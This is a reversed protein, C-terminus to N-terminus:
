EGRHELLPEFVRRALEAFEEDLPDAHRFALQYYPQMGEGWGANSGEWKDRALKLSNEKRQREAEMYALASKPFFKLPAHLGQWYLDLLDQLIANPNGVPQLRLRDSPGLWTSVLAVDAPALLNLLLHRIWLDLFHRAGLSDVTYDRLGQATVNDLWGTLQFHGLSLNVEVKQGSVEPMQNLDNLLAKLRGVERGYLAQGIQGHPLLGRARVLPLIEGPTRGELQGALLQQRIAVDAFPELLFPEHTELLGKHEYLHVRLRERLLYRAPNQFFWILQQVDLRRYAADPEPLTESVLPKATEWGQGAQQAADCLTPSYSFLRRDGTFYRPSFAQLPHETVILQLVDGNADDQPYFGQRVYDLLESVLVSPPIEGNDRIDRGVYSLYLAQRASLIAELFLYRDDLRRSRDGRQPHKAMLDFDVPQQPRPYVGDSLGILCVVQFPISRMPVMACFTVGGSLFGDVGSSANLKRKLWARIVELPVADTFGAVTANEALETLAGRVADREPEFTEDAAIFDALLRTLEERWDASTKAGGLRTNLAFLRRTFRQLRGMLRANEGEMADYPLVDRYLRREGAPLAFGLLLREMGAKWTHEATMPLELAARSDADIGWRVATDRLWASILSLDAETLEFRRRVAPIELLALVQNVDFRSGPLELLRLFADVVPSEARPNRDAISYPVRPNATAFVAHIAPAYTEIAPTMVVVGSAKLSPQRDFLDLLQDYLVEVERLPSHCVHVQLSYDITQLPTAPGDTTYDDRTCHTHNGGRNRLELIDMQLCHLLTDEAIEEFLDHVGADIEALLHHFDRGQRGLSALLRNGTELYLAAAEDASGCQNAIERETVIMGWYQRCPNLLYLDVACSKSLAHLTELYPTPLSNIGFVSVRGLIGAPRHTLKTITEVFARHLRARHPIHSNVLRRWLAAQWHNAEGAEWRNIWAPRYVLYQDFVDAIRWALEFQEFSDAKQLYGRLPSMCASDELDTFLELIRWVLIDKDFPSTEPVNPLVARYAEWVFAAPYPFRVNASIGLREALAMSIWRQMGHSQVVIIEPELWSAAPERLAEALVGALNEMRNSHYVSLM